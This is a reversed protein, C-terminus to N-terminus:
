RSKTDVYNQYSQSLFLERVRPFDDVRVLGIGSIKSFRTIYKNFECSALLQNRFTIDCYVESNDLTRAILDMTPLFAGAIQFEIFGTLRKKHVRSHMGLSKSTAGVASVLDDFSCPTKLYYKIKNPM